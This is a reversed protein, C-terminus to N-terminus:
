ISSIRALRLRKAGLYAPKSGSCARSCRASRSRVSSSIVQAATHQSPRAAAAPVHLSVALDQQAFVKMPVSDSTVSGGAAITVTPSDGFTVQRNSGTALAAGQVRQGVHAKGIALPMTGFASDIRIRVATGAITVRAIMRVTTNTVM